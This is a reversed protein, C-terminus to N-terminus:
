VIKYYKIIPVGGGVAAEFSFKSNYRNSIKLINIGHKAILAKNATVFFKGKKLSQKALELALGDSGGILEVIIDIKSNNIMKLPDQFWTYKNINFSRVKTKSRASIGQISLDLNYKKKFLSNKKQIIEVLGSGVTGLGVM